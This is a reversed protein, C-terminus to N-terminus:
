QKLLDALHTKIAIRLRREMSSLDRFNEDMKIASIKYVYFLLSKLSPGQAKLDDVDM